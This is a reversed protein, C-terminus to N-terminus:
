PAIELRKDDDGLKAGPVERGAKIAAAIRSKSVKPPPAPPQDCYEAPVQAEDIIQVSAAKGKIALTLMPHDVRKIGAHLMSELLYRRLADARREMAERRRKMEGEAEKIAAATAEINRCVMATATCKAELAGAEAELTDAITLPDMDLDALREALSRYEQALLYLQTV